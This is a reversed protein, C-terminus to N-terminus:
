EEIEGNPIGGPPMGAMSHKGIWKEEKEEGEEKEEKEEPPTEKEDKIQKNEEEEQPTEEDKKIEEKELPKKQEETM